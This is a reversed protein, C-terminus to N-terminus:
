AGISLTITQQTARNRGIIHVKWLNDKASTVAVADIGTSDTLGLPSRSYIYLFGSRAGADSLVIRLSRVTACDVIEAASEDALSPRAPTQRTELPSEVNKLIKSILAVSARRQKSCFM